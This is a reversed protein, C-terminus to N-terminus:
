FLSYFCVLSAAGTIMALADEAVATTELTGSTASEVETTSAVADNEQMVATSEAEALKRVALVALKKHAQVLEVDGGRPIVPQIDLTSQKGECQHFAVTLILSLATFSHM